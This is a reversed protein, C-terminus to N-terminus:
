VVGIVSGVALGLQDCARGQNVSVEILGISNEYWFPERKPVDSFTRAKQIKRGNIAISLGSALKEARMGSIANGFGDIYIVEPLDDPWDGGPLTTSPPLPNIFTLRWAQDDAASAIQAAAPGFLDRGHFSTSLSKPQWVLGHNTCVSAQRAVCEFLGNGPGVLIRGDCETVVPSRNGGVGPDVVGIIIADEPTYTVLAALLYAAAKVDHAPADHMLDIIPGPVSRASSIASHLQGVYFGNTGFDTFLYIPRVM